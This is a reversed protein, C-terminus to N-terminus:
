RDAYIMLEIQMSSEMGGAHLMMEELQHQDEVIADLRGRYCSDGLVRIREHGGKVKRNIM